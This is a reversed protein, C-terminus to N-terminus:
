RHQCVDRDSLCPPCAPDRDELVSYPLSSLARSPTSRGNDFWRLTANRALATAPLLLGATVIVARMMLKLSSCPDLGLRGDRTAGSCEDRQAKVPQLGAMDGESAGLASGVGEPDVPGVDLPLPLAFSPAHARYM